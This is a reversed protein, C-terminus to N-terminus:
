RDVLEEVGCVTLGVDMCKPPFVAWELTGPALALVDIGPPRVSVMPNHALLTTMKLAIRSCPLCATCSPVHSVV